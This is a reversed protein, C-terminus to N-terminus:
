DSAYERDRLGPAFSGPGARPLSLTIANVVVTVGPKTHCTNIFLFAVKFWCAVTQGCYPGCVTVSVRRRM